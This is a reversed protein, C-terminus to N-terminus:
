VKIDIITDSMESATKIVSASAKVGLEHKKLDVMAEVVDTLNGGEALTNSAAVDHAAKQMGKLAKNVGSVGANFASSKIEM